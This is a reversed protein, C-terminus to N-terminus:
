NYMNYRDDRFFGILTIDLASALEVAADSPASVACIVAVPVRCLKEVLEVSVRSSLLLWYARALTDDILLTGIAKDLGNHRGIDECFALLEGDKDYIAAAHTAGTRKFLRQQTWFNKQLNFMREDHLTFPQRTLPVYTGVTSINLEYADKDLQRIDLIDAATNIEERVYASGCFLQRLKQPTCLYRQQGGSTRVSIYREVILEDSCPLRVAHTVKVIDRKAIVAADLYDQYEEPTNLNLPADAGALDVCKGTAYQLLKRPAHVDDRFMEEIAAIAQKTYLSYLPQLQGDFRSFVVADEAECESLLREVVNIQLLPADVSTVFVKDYRASEIGNYIGDLPGYDSFKDVVIKCGQVYIDQNDRVSIIVEGFLTMLQRALYEVASQGDIEILAKDCGM